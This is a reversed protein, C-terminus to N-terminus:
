KLYGRIKGITQIVKTLEKVGRGKFMIMKEKQHKLIVKLLEEEYDDLKITKM